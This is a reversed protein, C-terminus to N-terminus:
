DLLVDLYMHPTGISQREGRRKREVMEAACNRFIMLLVGACGHFEVSNGDACSRQFLFEGAAIEVARLGLKALAQFMRHRRTDGQVTEHGVFNGEGSTWHISDVKVTTMVTLIPKELCVM